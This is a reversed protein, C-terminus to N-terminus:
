QQNHRVLYNVDNIAFARGTNRQPVGILKPATVNASEGLKTNENHKVTPSNQLRDKNNNNCKKM